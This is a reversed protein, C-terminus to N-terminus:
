SWRLPCASNSQSSLLGSDAEVSEVVAAVTAALCGKGRTSLGMPCYVPCFGIFATLLPIAGLAGIWSHNVIGYAILGIGLLTRLIADITDVKKKM